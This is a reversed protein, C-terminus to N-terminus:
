PTQPLASHQLSEWCPRTAVIKIIKGFNYWGSFDCCFYLLNKRTKEDAATCPDTEETPRISCCRYMLLVWRPGASAPDARSQMTCPRHPVSTAFSADSMMRSSSLKALMTFATTHPRWTYSLMALNRWNWSVTLTTATVSAKTPEHTSRTRVAQRYTATLGIHRDNRDMGM